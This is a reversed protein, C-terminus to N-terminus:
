MKHKLVHNKNESVRYKTTTKETMSSILLPSNSCLAVCLLFASFVFSFFRCLSCFTEGCSLYISLLNQM